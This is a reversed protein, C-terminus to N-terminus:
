GRFAWGLMLIGSATIWSGAVRVAVRTWATRLSVVFASVIAVLIFVATAIGVLSLPGGGAQVMASGNFVGRVLGLVLAIGAVLFHVLPEKLLLKLKFRNKNM